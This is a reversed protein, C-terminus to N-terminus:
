FGPPPVPTMSPAGKGQKRQRTKLDLKKEVTVIVKDSGSNGSNKRVQAM